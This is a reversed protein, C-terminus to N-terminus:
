EFLKLLVMFHVFGSSVAPYGRTVGEQLTPYGAAGLLYAEGVELLRLFYYRCHARFVGFVEMRITGWSGVIECLCAVQSM